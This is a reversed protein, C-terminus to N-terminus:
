LQVGTRAIHPEVNLRHQRSFAVSSISWIFANVHFLDEEHSVDEAAAVRSVCVRKEVVFKVDFGFRVFGLKDCNVLVLCAKDRM